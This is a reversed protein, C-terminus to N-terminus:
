WRSYRDLDKSSFVGRSELYSDEAEAEKWLEWDLIGNYDYCMGKSPPIGSKSWNKRIWASNDTLLLEEDSDNFYSDDHDEYEQKEPEVPKTYKANSTPQPALQPAPQPAPTRQAFTQQRNSSSEKQAQQGNRSNSQNRNKNQQRRQVKWSTNNSQQNKKSSM